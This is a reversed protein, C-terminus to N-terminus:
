LVKEFGEEDEVYGEETDFVKGTMHNIFIEMHRLTCMECYTAKQLVAVKLPVASIALDSRSLGAEFLADYLLHPLWGSIGDCKCVRHEMDFADGLRVTRLQKFHGLFGRFEMKTYDDVIIGQLEEILSRAHSPIVRLVEELGDPDAWNGVKVATMRWYTSCAEEYVQHCTFLLRNHDTPELFLTPSRSSSAREIAAQSGSFAERYIKLRLEAPLKTFLPSAVHGHGRKEGEGITTNVMTDFETTDLLLVYCLITEHPSPSYTTSHGELWFVSNIFHLTDPLLFYLFHLCRGLYWLLTDVECLLLWRACGFPLQCM